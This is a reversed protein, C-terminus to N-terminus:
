DNLFKSFTSRIHFHHEYEAWRMVARFGDSKKGYGLLKLWYAVKDPGPAKLLGREYKSMNTPQLGNDLCFTRLTIGKALRAAKWAKAFAGM